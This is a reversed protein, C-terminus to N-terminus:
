ASEQEEGETDLQPLHLPGRGAFHRVRFRSLLGPVTVFELQDVGWGLRRLCSRGFFQARRGSRRSFQFSSSSWSRVSASFPATRVARTCRMSSYSDGCQAAQTNVCGRPPAREPRPRRGCVRAEALSDPSAPEQSCTTSLFLLPPHLRYPTASRQIQSLRQRLGPTRPAM